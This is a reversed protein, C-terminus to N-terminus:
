VSGAPCSPGGICAAPPHSTEEGQKAEISSHETCEGKYLYEGHEKTSKDLLLMPLLIQLKLM